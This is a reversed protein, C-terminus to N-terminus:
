LVCGQRNFRPSVSRRGGDFTWRLCRLCAQKMRAIAGEMGAGNEIGEAHGGCPAIAPFHESVM